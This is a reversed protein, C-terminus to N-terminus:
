VPLKTTVPSGVTDMVVPLGLRDPRPSGPVQRVMKRTPPAAVEGWLALQHRPLLWTGHLILDPQEM